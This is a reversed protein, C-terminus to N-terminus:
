FNIQLLNMMTQPFRQLLKRQKQIIMPVNFVKIFDVVIKSAKEIGSKLAIPNAHKTKIVYYGNNIISQALVCSSTTNHTVIYDDTIYLEDQNSVKICQVVEYEGTDEIEMLQIGYKNGKLENIANISTM